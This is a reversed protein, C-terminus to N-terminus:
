SFHVRKGLNATYIDEESDSLYDGGVARAASLRIETKDDAVTKPDDYETVIKALGLKLIEPDSLTPYRKKALKLGNRIENTISLRIVTPTTNRM